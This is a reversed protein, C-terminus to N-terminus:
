NGPIKIVDVLPSLKECAVMEVDVIDISYVPISIARDGDVL